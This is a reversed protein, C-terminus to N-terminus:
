LSCGADGLRYTTAIQLKAITVVVAMAAMVM